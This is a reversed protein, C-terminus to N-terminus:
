GRDSEAVALRNSICSAPIEPWPPIMLFVVSEPMAATM